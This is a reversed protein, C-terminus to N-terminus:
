KPIECFNLMAGKSFTPSHVRSTLVEHGHRKDQMYWLTCVTFASINAPM